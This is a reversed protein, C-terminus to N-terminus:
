VTNTTKATRAVIVIEDEDMEEQEEENTDASHTFESLIDEDTLPDSEFTVANDDCEM